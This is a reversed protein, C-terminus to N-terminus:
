SLKSARRRMFMAVGLIGAIVAMPPAGSRFLLAGVLIAAGIYYRWKWMMELVGGSM